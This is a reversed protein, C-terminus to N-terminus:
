DRGDMPQKQEQRGIAGTQRSGETVWAGSTLSMRGCPLEVYPDGQLWTHYHSKFYLWSICRKKNQESCWLSINFHRIDDEQEKKKKKRKRAPRTSDLNRGPFKLLQTESEKGGAPNAKLDGHQPENPLKRGM